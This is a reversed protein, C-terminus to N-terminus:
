KKKLYINKFLVLVAFGLTVPKFVNSIKEGSKATDSHVAINGISLGFGTHFVVTGIGTHVM